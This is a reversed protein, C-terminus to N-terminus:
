TNPKPRQGRKARPAHPAGLVGHALPRVALRLAHEPSRKPCATGAKYIGGSGGKDFPSIPSFGYTALDRPKASARNPCADRSPTAYRRLSAM